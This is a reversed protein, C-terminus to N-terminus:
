LCISGEYRRYTGLFCRAAVNGSFGIHEHEWAKLYSVDCVLQYLAKAVSNGYARDELTYCARYVVKAAATRYLIYIIHYRYCGALCHVCFCSM